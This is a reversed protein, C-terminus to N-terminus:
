KRKKTALKRKAPASKKVSKKAKATKTKKASKSAGARRTPATQEFMLSYGDPDVLSMMRSGWEMDMPPTEIEAGIMKAAEFVEDVNKVNPMIVSGVGWPKNKLWEAANPDGPMDHPGLVLSSNGVNYSYVNMEPWYRERKFGLGEYFAASKEVNTCNLYVGLSNFRIAM